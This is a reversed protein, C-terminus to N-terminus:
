VSEEPVANFPLNMMAIVSSPHEERSVRIPEGEQEPRFRAVRTFPPHLEILGFEETQARRVAREAGARILARAKEPQLHIAGTNRRCYQERTLDDGRGPTTGRKVGVTEIGPVL